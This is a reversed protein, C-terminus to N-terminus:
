KNEANEIYIQKKVPCLFGLHLSSLATNDM